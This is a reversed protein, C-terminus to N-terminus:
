ESKEVEMKKCEEWLKDMEELSASELSRGQKSLTKEVFKFRTIFKSIAKSLATEPHVKIFRSLNVISFLLDGFEEALRDQGGKDLVDKLECFEEEVKKLVGEADPWDFGFKSAREGLRYARMLAPLKKPVSDLFSSDANV